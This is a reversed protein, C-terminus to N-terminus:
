ARSIARALKRADIGLERLNGSIPNTFGIFYLGPANPHSRSGHVTPRGGAELVGLHGVLPELGRRYGTAAIVAEPSVRSGDALVVAGQEFSEVAAVVHVARRKLLGILGVDLIPIVGRRLFDSHFGQEARPMGFRSLDGVFVRQMLGVIRDGISPPLRRIGIGFLQAPVGLAQRPVIQPPTHVAILVRRAGGEVLDVAIEAGSNGAGVVLVEKGRYPAANSYASSHVLEGAYRERGPWGPVFPIRNYGTAVVVRPAELEGHSTPLLWGGNAPDIREVETDFLIELAHHAAYGELYAVVGDRPVWRGYGRSYRLGPLDSFARTTHLRLRDYQGRWSAGVHSARELVVARVGSRELMAAAALGAPGAGVVVTKTGAVFRIITTGPVLLRQTGLPKCDRPFFIVLSSSVATM